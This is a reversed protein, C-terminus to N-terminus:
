RHNHGEDGLCSKRQRGAFALRQGRRHVHQSRFHRRECIVRAKPGWEPAHGHLVHSLLVTAVSHFRLRRREDARYYCTDDLHCHCQAFLPYFTPRPRDLLQFLLALSQVRKERCLPPMQLGRARACAIKTSTLVLVSMVRFQEKKRGVKTAYFFDVLFHAIHGRCCRSRGEGNTTCCDLAVCVLGLDLAAETEIHVRLQRWLDDADLSANAEEIMHTIQHWETCTFLCCLLNLSFIIRMLHKVRKGLVAAHRKRDDAISVEPDIVVVGGFVAGQRESFGELRSQTGYLADLAVTSAMCGEILRERTGDDVDRRAGVADGFQSELAFLNPIQAAFHDRVDEVAKGHSGTDREMDVAQSTVVIMM